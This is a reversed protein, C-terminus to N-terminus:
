TYEAVADSEDSNGRIIRKVPTQLEGARAADKREALTHIRVAEPYDAYKALWAKLEDFDAVTQPSLFGKAAVQGLLSRNKVQASLAAIEVKNGAAAAAFLKKYTQVDEDGLVRVFSAPSALSADSSLGLAFSAAIILVRLIRAAM